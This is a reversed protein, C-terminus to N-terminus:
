FFGTVTCTNVGSDPHRQVDSNYDSQIEGRKWPPLNHPYQVSCESMGREHGGWTASRLECVNGCLAVADTERGRVQRMVMGFLTATEQWCEVLRRRRSGNKM